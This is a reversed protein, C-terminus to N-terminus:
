KKERQLEPASLQHYQPLISQWNCVSSYRTAQLIHRANLETHPTEAIQLQWHELLNPKAAVGPGCTRANDPVAFPLPDADSCAVVEQHTIIKDDNIEIIAVFTTDKKLPLLCVWTGNGQAIAIADMSGIPFVPTNFSWALSRACVSAVRLGTFSGPGVACALAAISGHEERCALLSEVLKHKADFGSESQYVLEKNSRDGLCLSFGNGLCEFALILDTDQVNILQQEM